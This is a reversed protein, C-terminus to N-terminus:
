EGLFEEREQKAVKLTDVLNELEKFNSSSDEKNIGWVGYRYSIKDTITTWSLGFDSGSGDGFSYKVVALREGRVFGKVSEKSDM